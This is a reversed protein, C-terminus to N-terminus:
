GTTFNVTNQISRTANYNQTIESQSLVRNYIRVESIIQRTTSEAAGTFAATGFRLPVYSEGLLVFSSFDTGTQDINRTTIFEADKYGSIAGGPTFTLTYTHEDTTDGFYIQGDRSYITDAYGGGTKVYYGLYNNGNKRWTPWVNTTPSNYRVGCFSTATVEITAGSSLSFSDQAPLWLTSYTSENSTNVNSILGYPKLLLGSEVFGSDVGDWDINYVACDNNSISNKIAPPNAPDNEATRHRLELNVVLGNTVFDVPPVTTDTISVSIQKASVRRSTLTVTESEDDTDADQLASVTVTQATNYNLPTFTLTQPSVSVKTSDSVAIYVTQNQSPATALTVTFTGNTGETLTMSNVSIVMEGYTGGDVLAELEIIADQIANLNSAPIVTVGDTYTLKQLAM